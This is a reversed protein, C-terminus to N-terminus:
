VQRGKVVKLVIVLVVILGVLIIYYWWSDTIGALTMLSM